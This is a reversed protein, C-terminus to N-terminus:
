GTPFLTAVMPHNRYKQYVAYPINGVPDGLQYVTNLVLQLASGKAGLIMEYGVSSQSFNEEVQRRIEVTASILAVGLAISIGTLTVSLARQAINRFVLSLTNM